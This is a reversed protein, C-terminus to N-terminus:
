EIFLPLITLQINDKIFIANSPTKMMYDITLTVNRPELAKGDIQFLSRDIIMFGEHFGLRKTIRTDGYEYSAVFFNKENVEIREPVPIFISDLLDYNPFISNELKDFAGMSNSDAPGHASLHGTRTLIEMVTERKKKSPRGSWVLREKTEINVVEM